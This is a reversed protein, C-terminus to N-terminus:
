ENQNALAPLQPKRVTSRGRAFATLPQEISHHVLLGFPAVLLLVTGVFIWASLHSSLHVRNWILHSLRVLWPHALYIAYSADGLAVLGITTLITPSAPSLSERRLAAAAVIFAAPLGSIVPRWPGDTALHEMAGLALSGLGVLLLILALAPPLRWGDIFALAVFTGMVFELIIPNTWFALPGPPPTLVIGLIVFTAFFSSLVFITSRMPLFLLAAFAVYFFMEYDLTWGLKYVPRILDDGAHQYPIFVYSKLVELATPKSDNLAQPTVALVVLFLTTMLWYLPVIRAIRRRLFKLWSKSVGFLDQSAYVMIFGSIVFFVNVGAGAIDLLIPTGRFSLPVPLTTAEVLTHVFVISIAAM